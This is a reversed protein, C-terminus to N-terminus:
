EFDFQAFPNGCTDDTHWFGLYKVVKNGATVEPDLAVNTSMVFHTVINELPDIWDPSNEVFRDVELYRLLLLNYGELRYKKQWHTGLIHDKFDRLFRDMVEDPITIPEMKWRLLTKMGLESKWKTLFPVSTLGLAGLSMLLTFRRRSIKKM